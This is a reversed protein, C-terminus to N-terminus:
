LVITEDDLRYSIDKIDRDDMEDIAKQKHNELYTLLKPYNITENTLILTIM